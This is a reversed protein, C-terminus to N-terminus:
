LSLRLGTTLAHAQGDLEDELLALARPGTCHGTWLRRVGMAKLERAVSRVYEPPCNLDNVGPSYMHLGGLVAGVPLGGLQQQVSRVINVIGGHSCPSFVILEGNQLFVLAHEHSFDDPIYTEDSQKQLLTAERSDFRPDAATKPVLWISEALQRFGDVPVFRDRHAQYMARDMGVFVCGEPKKAYLPGPASSRLYVPAHTNAVFFRGLGNAHDRHGHSLVAFDARDLDIGLLAANDAFRGSAGADLLITQEGAEIWFSLGHEAVLGAGDPATNEILVTINM